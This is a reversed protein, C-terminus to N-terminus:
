ADEDDQGDHEQEDPWSEVSKILQMVLYSAKNAVSQGHEVLRRNPHRRWMGKLVAAYEGISGRAIDYHNLKVRKKRRTCGEGLNAEASVACRRLENIDKGMGRPADRALEEAIERMELVLRYVLWKEYIFM